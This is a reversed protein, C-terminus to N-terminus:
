LRLRTKSLLAKIDSVWEYPLRHPDDDSRESASKTPARPKRLTNSKAFLATGAM